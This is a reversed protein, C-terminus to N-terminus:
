NRKQLKELESMIKKMEDAAVKDSIKKLQPVYKQNIIAIQEQLLLPAAATYKKGVPSEFFKILEEVESVTFHKSLVPCNVDDILDSLSMVEKAKVSIKQTYSEMAKQFLQGFKQKEEPTANELKKAADVLGVVFGQQFQTVMANLMQNYQSGTNAVKYFKQCVKLEAKKDQAKVCPVVVLLVLFSLFVITITNQLKKAM